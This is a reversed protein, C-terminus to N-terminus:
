DMGAPFRKRQAPATRRFTFRSPSHFDVAFFGRRHILGQQTVGCVRFAPCTITLGPPLFRVSLRDAM